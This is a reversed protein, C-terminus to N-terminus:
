LLTNLSISYSRPASDYTRYSSHSRSVENMIVEGTLRVRASTKSM